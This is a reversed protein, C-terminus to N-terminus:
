VTRARSGKISEDDDDDNDDNDDEDDDDDRTGTFRFCHTQSLTTFITGLSWSSKSTSSPPFINLRAKNRM